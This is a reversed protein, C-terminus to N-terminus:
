RAAFFGLGETSPCATKRSVQRNESKLVHATFVEIPSISAHGYQDVAVYQDKTNLLAMRPVLLGDLGQLEEQGRFRRHAYEKLVDRLEPINARSRCVLITKPKWDLLGGAPQAAELVDEREQVIRRIDIRFPSPEDHLVVYLSNLNVIGSEDGRHSNVPDIADEGVVGTVEAPVVTYRCNLGAVDFVRPVGGAAGSIVAYNM